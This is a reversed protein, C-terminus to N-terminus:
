LNYSSGQIFYEELKEIIVIIFHLISPLTEFFATCCDFYSILVNGWNTKNRNQILALIIEQLFSKSGDSSQTKKNRKITIEVTDTDSAGDEDTVTLRATYVGEVFYYFTPNQENSEANQIIPKTNGIFNWHYSLNEGDIDEGRGNFDVQFILPCLPIIEIMNASAYARPPINRIVNIEMTDTGIQGDNDIVTLHVIYRGIEGFTHIPNREESVSGDGFNWHYSEIRGDLDYGHGNFNVKLSAKGCTVDSSAKAVPQYYDIVNIMISDNGTAGSSDKV